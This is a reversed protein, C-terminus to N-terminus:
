GARRLSAVIADPTGRDRALWADLESRQIHIRRGKRSVPLGEAVWTRLTKPARGCYAAAQELTMTAPANRRLAAEVAEVILARLQELDDPDLRM